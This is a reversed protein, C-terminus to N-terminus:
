KKKIYFKSYGFFLIGVIIAVILISSIVQSNFKETNKQENYKQVYEDISNGVKQELAQVYETKLQCGWTYGDYTECVQLCCEFGGWGPTGDFGNCPGEIGIESVTIETKSAGPGSNCTGNFINYYFGGNEPATAMITSSFFILSLGVLVLFIKKM